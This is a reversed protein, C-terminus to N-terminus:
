HLKERKDYYGRCLSVVEACAQTILPHRVRTFGTDQLELQDSQFALWRVSQRTLASSAAQFLSPCDKPVINNTKSFHHKTFYSFVPYEGNQDKDSSQIDSLFWQLPKSEKFEVKVWLKLAPGKLTLGQGESVWVTRWKQWPLTSCPLHKTDTKQQENTQNIKMKNEWEQYNIFFLVFKVCLIANHMFTFFRVPYLCFSLHYSLIYHLISNQSIQLM